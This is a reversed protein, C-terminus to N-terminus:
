DAIRKVFVERRWTLRSTERNGRDALSRSILAQEDYDTDYLM